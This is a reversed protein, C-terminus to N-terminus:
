KKIWTKGSDFSYKFDKSNGALLNISDLFDKNATVNLIDGCEPCKPNKYYCYVCMFVDKCKSCYLLDEKTKKECVICIKM